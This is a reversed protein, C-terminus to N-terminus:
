RIKTSQERPLAFFAADPGFKCPARRDVTLGSTRSLRVLSKTLPLISALFNAFVSSAANPFFSATTNGSIKAVRGASLLAAKCFTVLYYIHTHKHLIFCDM